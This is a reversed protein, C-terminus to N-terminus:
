HWRGRTLLQTDRLQQSLKESVKEESRHCPFLSRSQTQCSSWAGSVKGGTTMTFFGSSAM